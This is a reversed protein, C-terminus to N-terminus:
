QTVFPSASESLRLAPLSDGRFSIGALRQLMEPLGGLLLAFLVLALLLHLVQLGLQAGHVLSHGDLLLFGNLSIRVL